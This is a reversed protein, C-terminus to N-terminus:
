HDGLFEFDAQVHGEHVRPLLAVLEDGHLVQQERQQVVRRGGLHQAGARALMSSSRLSSVSKMLSCVGVRRRRAVLDVGLGREAELAHDLAGDQM